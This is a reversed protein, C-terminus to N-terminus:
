MLERLRDPAPFQTSQRHIRRAVQVCRTQYMASCRPTAQAYQSIVNLAGCALQCQDRPRGVSRAAVPEGLDLVRLLGVGGAHDDVAIWALREDIHVTLTRTEDM